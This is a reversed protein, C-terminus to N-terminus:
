PAPGSSPTEPSTPLSQIENLDSFLDQVLRSLRECRVEVEAHPISSFRIKMSSCGLSTDCCLSPNKLCIGSGFLRRPTLTLFLGLLKAIGEPGLYVLKTYKGPVESPILSFELAM